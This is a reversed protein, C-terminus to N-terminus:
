SLVFGKYDDISFCYKCKKCFVCGRSKMIINHHKTGIQCDGCKCKYMYKKHRRVRHKEVDYNHCRTPEKGFLQMIQKWEKGHKCRKEFYHDAVLHAVEHPVTEEIFDQYNDRALGLNYRIKWLSSYAMGATCGRLNCLIDPYVMSTGLKENAIEIWEHSYHILKNELDLDTM